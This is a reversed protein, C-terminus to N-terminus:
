CYDEFYVVPRSTMGAQPCFESSKIASLREADVIKSIQCYGVGTYVAKIVFGNKILFKRAERKSALKNTLKM